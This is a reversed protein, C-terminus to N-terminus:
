PHEQVVCQVIGHAVRPDFGLQAVKQAEATPSVGSNLDQEIVGVLQLNQPNHEGLPIETINGVCRSYGDIDAHASVGMLVAPAIFLVAIAMGVAAAVYTFRMSGYMTVGPKHRAGARVGPGSRM